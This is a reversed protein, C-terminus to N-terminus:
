TRARPRPTFLNRSEGRSYINKVDQANAGPAPIGKDGRIQAAIAEHHEEIQAEDEQWLELRIKMLYLRTGDVDGVSVQSGLDSNGDAEYSNALGAHNLLVEDRKVFEYGANQAQEIRQPTGRFWYTHYGPIAPVSLKLTPLAMPIRKRPAKEPANAPNIKAAESSAAAQPPQFLPNM